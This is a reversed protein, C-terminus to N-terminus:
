FFLFAADYDGLFLNGDLYSCHFHWSINFKGLICSVACHLVGWTVLSNCGLFGGRPLVALILGTVGLGM